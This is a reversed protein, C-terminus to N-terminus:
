TRNRITLVRPGATVSPTKMHQVRRSFRPIPLDSLKSRRRSSRQERRSSRKPPPPAARYYDYAVRGNLVILEDERRKWVKWLFRLSWFILITVRTFLFSMVRIEVYHGFLKGQYIVRDNVRWNKAFMLKMLYVSQGGAFAAVVPIAFWQRFGMRQRALPMFADLTLVWHIWVWAAMAVLSRHDWFFVDCVLLHALTLQLSVFAFEFSFCIRKLLTPHSLSLFIGYFVFSGIASLVFLVAPEDTDAIIGNMYAIITITATLITFAFLSIRALRTWMLHPNQYGWLVKRADFREESRIYYMTTQTPKTIEITRLSLQPLVSARHCMRRSSISQLKVPCQYNMCHVASRNGAKNKLAVSRRYVNRCLLAALTVCGNAVVDALSYIHNNFTFVAPYSDSILDLQVLGFVTICLLMGVTSPVLYKRFMTLNADVLIGLQQGFWMMTILSIRLDSVYAALGVMTLFNVVSFFWVDYSWLIARLVDIRLSLLFALCGPLSMFASLLSLWRGIESPIHLNIPMSLLALNYSLTFFVTGRKALADWRKTVKPGLLRTKISHSVDVVPLSSSQVIEYVYQDVRSRRSHAPAVAM